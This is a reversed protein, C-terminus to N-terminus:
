QARQLQQLRGVHGDDVFPHGVVYAQLDALIGVPRRQARLKGQGLAGIPVARCQGSVVIAGQSIQQGFGPFALADDQEGARVGQPM